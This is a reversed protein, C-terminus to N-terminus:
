GDRVKLLVGPPAAYILEVPLSNGNGWRLVRAAPDYRIGTIPNLVLLYDGSRTNERPPPTSFFSHVNHPLLRYHARSRVYNTAGVPDANILWIRVPRAPLKQKVGAIFQLVKEDEKELSKGEGPKGAYDRYTSQLQRWLDAQWRVDLLLWGSLFFVAFPTLTWPRRRIRSLGAYLLGSLGVWLAAALAPPFLARPVSGLVFNISRTSWGAFTSWERWVQALLAGAGPAPPRFELKHLTVPQAPQGHVMIGVGAIVGQWEPLARLDVLGAPPASLAVERLTRPADATAWVFRVDAPERLGDIFWALTAYRAAPVNLTSSSAFAEGRPGVQRIELGDATVGGQGAVLTFDTEWLTQATRAGYRDGTLYYAVLLGLLVGASGIAILVGYLLERRM